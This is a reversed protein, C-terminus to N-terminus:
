TLLPASRASLSVSPQPQNFRRRIVALSALSSAIRDALPSAPDADGLTRLCSEYAKESVDKVALLRADSPERLFGAIESVLVRQCHALTVPLHGGAQQLTVIEYGLACLDVAWGARKQEPEESQDSLLLLDNLIRVISGLYAVGTMKGHEINRVTRQRLRKIVAIKSRNAQRPFLLRHALGVTGVGLITALAGNFFAVVDYDMINQPDLGSALLLMAAGVEGPRRLSIGMGVGVLLVPFLALVFMPFGDMQPMLYFTVLYIPVVAILMGRFAAETARAPNPAIVYRCSALGVWTLFTDGAPWATVIWFLSALGVAVLVRLVAMAAAYTDIPATIKAPLPPLIRPTEAFLASRTELYNQLCVALRRVKVLGVLEVGDSIEQPNEIGSFYAAAQLAKLEQDFREYILSNRINRVSHLSESVAQRLHGLAWSLRPLEGDALLRRISFLHTNLSGSSNAVDLCELHFRGLNARSFGTGTEEFAFGFRLNEISVANATLTKLARSLRSPDCELCLCTSLLQFLEQDTAEVLKVLRPRISEPFAIMSVTSMCLIGIIINEARSSIIDFALVPTLAAPIGVIATTYGSLVWAYAWHGRQSHSFFACVSLWAAFFGLFLVGEQAFANVLVFSATAGVLTGVIRAVSKALMQGNQREGGVIYCTTLAWHSGDLSLSFSIYLALCAACAARFSYTWASCDIEPL